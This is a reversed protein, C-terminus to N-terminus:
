FRHKSVRDAKKEISNHFHLYDLYHFRLYGKWPQYKFGLIGDNHIDGRGGPTEFDCSECYISLLGSPEDLVSSSTCKDNEIFLGCRPCLINNEIVDSPDGSALFCRPEYAFESKESETELSKKFIDFKYNNKITIPKIEIWYENGSPTIVLFDPVYWVNKIQFGQYEYYWKLKLSDFFMAWRAELRSRFKIGNVVTPIPTITMKQEM